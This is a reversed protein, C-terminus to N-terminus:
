LGLAKELAEEKTKCEICQTTVPRAKLRQISIDEGCQECIGPAPAGEKVRHIHNCAPCAIMTDPGEMPVLELDMSTVAPRLNCRIGISMLKQYVREAREEALSKAIVNGRTRMLQEAGEVGIKLLRALKDLAVERESGQLDTGYLVVDYTREATTM